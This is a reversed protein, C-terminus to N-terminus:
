QQPGDTPAVQMALTVLARFENEDITVVYADAYDFIMTELARMTFLPSPNAQLAQHALVVIDLFTDKPFDVRVAGSSQALMSQLSERSLRAL